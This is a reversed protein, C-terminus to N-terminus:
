TSRSNNVQTEWWWNGTWMNDYIREKGEEDAYVREPAYRM